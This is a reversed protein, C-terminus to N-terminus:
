NPYKARVTSSLFLCSKAIQLATEISDAQVITFGSMTTTGGASVKNRAPLSNAV